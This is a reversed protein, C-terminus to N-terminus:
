CDAGNKLCDQFKCTCGIRDGDPLDTDWGNEFCKSFRCRTSARSGDPLATQWGDSACKGFNCRTTARDGDPLTTEWGDEMCKGFSCRTTARRGDPFTTEWGNELCKGFSCRSVVRGGDPLTAEWGNTMCDSFSCRGAAFVAASAFARRQKEAEAQAAAEAALEAERARAAAEEARQAEELQRQAEAERARREAEYAAVDRMATKWALKKADGGARALCVDVLDYTQTEDVQARAIACGRLVREDVMPDSPLTSLHAFAALEGAELAVLDADAAEQNRGLVALWGARARSLPAKPASPIKSALDLWALAEAALAPGDFGREFAGAMRADELQRSFEIAHAFFASPEGPSDRVPPPANTPRQVPPENPDPKPKLDDPLLARLSAREAELGRRRTADQSELEALRQQEAAAPDAPASPSTTDSPMFWSCTASAFIAALGFPALASAHRHRQAKPWSACPPGEPRTM